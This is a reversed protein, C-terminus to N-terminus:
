LIHWSAGRGRDRDREIELKKNKQDGERECKGKPMYGPDLIVVKWRLERGRM